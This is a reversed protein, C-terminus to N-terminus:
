GTRHPLSGLIQDLDGARRLRTTLGLKSIVDGSLRPDLVLTLHSGSEWNKRRRIPQWPWEEGRKTHLLENWNLQEIEDGTCKIIAVM